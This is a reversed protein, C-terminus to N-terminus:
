IDHKRIERAGAVCRKVLQWGPLADAYEKRTESYNAM